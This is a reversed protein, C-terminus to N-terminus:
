GRQSVLSLSSHESFFPALVQESDILKNIIEFIFHNHYIPNDLLDKIMDMHNHQLFYIESLYNDLDYSINEIRNHNIICGLKNKHKKSLFIQSGIQPKFKDFTKKSLITDGFLILCDDNLFDKVLFLSYTNNYKDFRSNYVIHIDNNLLNNKSIYSYTYTCFYYNM